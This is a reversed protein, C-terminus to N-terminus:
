QTTHFYGSESGEMYGQIELTYHEMSAHKLGCCLDYVNLETSVFVNNNLQPILNSLFFLNVLSDPGSRASIFHDTGTCRVGRTVAGLCKCRVEM